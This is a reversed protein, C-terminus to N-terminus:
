AMLALTDLPCEHGTEVRHEGADVLSAGVGPALIPEAQDAIGLQLAGHDDIGQDGLHQGTVAQGQCMKVPTELRQEPFGHAIM